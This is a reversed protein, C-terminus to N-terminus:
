SLSLHRASTFITIFNPKWLIRPIEQSAASMTLKELLVRSWLTLLYETDRYVTSDHSSPALAKAASSIRICVTVSAHERDCLLQPQLLLEAILVHMVM